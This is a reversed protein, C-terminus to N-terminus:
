LSSNLANSLYRELSGNELLLKELIQFLVIVDQKM